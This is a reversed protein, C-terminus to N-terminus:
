LLTAFFLRQLKSIASKAALQLPAHTRASGGRRLDNSVVSTLHAQLHLALLFPQPQLATTSPIHLCTSPTAGERKGRRRVICGSVFPKQFSDTSLTQFAASHSWLSQHNCCFHLWLPASRSHGGEALRLTEPQQQCPYRAQSGSYAGCVVTPAAINLQIHLDLRAQSSAFVSKEYLLVKLATIRRTIHFYVDM